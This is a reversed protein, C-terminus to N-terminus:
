CFHCYCLCCYAGIYDADPPITTTDPHMIGMWIAGNNMLKKIDRVNYPYVWGKVVNSPWGTGDEQFYQRSNEEEHGKHFKLVLIPGKLDYINDQFMSTHTEYLELGKYLSM